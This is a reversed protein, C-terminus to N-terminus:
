RHHGRLCKAGASSAQQGGWVAYMMRLTDFHTTGSVGCPLMPILQCRNVSCTVPICVETVQDMEGSVERMRACAADRARTARELEAGQAEFRERLACVQQELSTVDTHAQALLEGSKEADDDKARQLAAFSQRLSDIQLCHPPTM